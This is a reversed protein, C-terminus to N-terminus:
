RSIEEFTIYSPDLRSTRLEVPKSNVEIVLMNDNQNEDLLYISEGESGNNWRNLSILKYKQGRYEFLVDSKEVNTPINLMAIKNRMFLEYEEVSPINNLHMAAYYIRNFDRNRLFFNPEYECVRRILNLGKENVNNNLYQWSLFFLGTVADKYKSANDLMIVEIRELKDQHSPFKYNYNLLADVWYKMGKVIKNGYFDSNFFIDGLYYNALFRCNGKQSIKLLIEEAKKYEKNNNYFKAIDFLAYSNENKQFENQALEIALDINRERGLGYLCCLTLYETTFYTYDWDHLTKFIPYAETYKKDNYLDKAVSYISDMMTQSSDFDHIRKILSKTWGQRSISFNNRLAKFYYLLAKTSDNRLYADGMYMQAADYYNNQSTIGELLSLAKNNFGETTYSDSIMCISYGGDDAKLAYKEAKKFNKPVGYGYTLCRVVNSFAKTYGADALKIYIDFAINYFEAEFYIHALKYLKEMSDEDLKNYKKLSILGDLKETFDISKSLEKMRLESAEDILTYFFSCGMELTDTEITRITSGDNTVFLRLRPISDTYDSVRSRMGTIKEMRRNDDGYTWHILPFDVLQAGLVIADRGNQINYPLDQDARWPSYSVLIAERTCENISDFLDSVLEDKAIDQIRKHQRLTAYMCHLKVGYDELNGKGIVIDKVSTQLTSPDIHFVRIQKDKEYFLVPMTSKEILFDTYSSSPLIGTKNISLIIDNDDFGYDYGKEDTVEVSLYKPCKDKLESSDQIINSNEDLLIHGNTKSIIDYCFLSGYKDEVYSPESFEDTGYFCNFDENLLFSSNLHLGHMWSCGGCRTLHGFANLDDNRIEKGNYYASGCIDKLYGNEYIASIKYSNDTNIYTIKLLNGNSDKEIEVNVFCSLYPNSIPIKERPVKYQYEEIPGNWKSDIKGLSDCYLRKEIKGDKSYQEIKYANKSRETIVVSDKKEISYLLRITEYKSSGYDTSEVLVDDNEIKSFEINLDIKITDGNADFNLNEIPEGYDNIRYLSKCNLNYSNYRSLNGLKDFGCIMSKYGFDNLEYVIRYTGLNNEIPEGYQNLNQVEILRNYGDYLYRHKIEGNRYDVSIPKWDEGMYTDSIKNHKNDYEYEVGCVGSEDNVASGNSDMSRESILRGLEDYIYQHCYVGDSNPKVYGKSDMYKVISDNGWKDREIYVLTGYSFEKDPRMEAPLGYCDRYNGVFVKGNSDIPFISFSFVLDGDSDYAREQIVKEGLPDSILDIRCLSQMKLRWAYSAKVDSDSESDAKVIYTQFSEPVYKGHGNICEVRCWNGTANKRSFRYIKNYRHIDKKNVVQLPMTWGHQKKLSIAYVTDEEIQSIRVNEKATAREKNRVITKNGFYTRIQGYTDLHGVFSMFFLLCFIKIYLKHM